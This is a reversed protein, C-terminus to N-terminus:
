FGGRRGPWRWAWRPCGLRPLAGGVVGPGTVEGDFEEARPQDIGWSLLVRTRGYASSQDRWGSADTVGLAGLAGSGNGHVGGEGLRASCTPSCPTTVDGRQWGRGADSHVTAVQGLGPELTDRSFWVSGRGFWGVV